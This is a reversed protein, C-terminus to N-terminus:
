AGVGFQGDPSFHSNETPHEHYAVAFSQYGRQQCEREIWDDIIGIPVDAPFPDSCMRWDLLARFETNNM